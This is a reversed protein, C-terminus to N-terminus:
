LVPNGAIRALLEGLFHREGPTLATVEDLSARLGSAMALVGAAKVRTEDLIAAMVAERAAAAISGREAAHKGFLTLVTGAGCAHILDVAHEETVRLRGAQAVRRVRVRLVALGAQTAPSSAGPGGDSMLRFIAPNALGFAVYDDWGQRLDTVPDPDPRRAAKGAVFAAMAQEAVADLLGHKDRFLRFITPAQVSAAAAVARTTTAEIGGSVLLKAAAAIIRARTNDPGADAM